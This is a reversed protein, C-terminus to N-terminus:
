NGAMKEKPLFVYDGDVLGDTPILEGDTVDHGTFCLYGHNAMWAHVDDVTDGARRLAAANLECIISPRFRSICADAGHLGRLEFGETDLKVMDLRELGVKEAFQDLTTVAVVDHKLDYRDALDSEGGLHSLGFGVAGSKKIPLSLLQTGEQDSLAMPIVTVNTTGSFLLGLNLVARTYSAPEFAFVHGRKALGAFLKSFQGSHAGGDIVVSDPPILKRLYPIAERHHQRFAAKFAHAFFSGTLRLQALKRM